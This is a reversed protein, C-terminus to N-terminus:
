VVRKSEVFQEILRKIEIVESRNLTEKSYKLETLEEIVKILLQKDEKTLSQNKEVVGPNTSELGQVNKLYRSFEHALREIYEKYNEKQILPELGSIREAAQVHPDLTLKVEKRRKTIKIVLFTVTGLLALAATVIGVWFWPIHIPAGKVRFNRGPIELIQTGTKGSEVYEIPFPEIIAEGKRVPRIEFTFSRIQKMVTETVPVSETSVSTNEIELGKTEIHPPILKIREADTGVWEIKVTYSIKTGVKPPEEEPKLETSVEFKESPTQAFCTPIVGLVILLILIRFM